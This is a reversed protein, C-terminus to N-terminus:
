DSEDTWIGQLDPEGWATKLPATKLPATKLPATKLPATQSAQDVQANAVTVETAMFVILASLAAVSAGVSKFLRILMGYRGSAVALRSGFALGPVCERGLRSWTALDVM